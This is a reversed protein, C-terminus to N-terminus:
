AVELAAAVAEVPELTATLGPLEDQAGTLKSAHLEVVQRDDKWLVGNAADMFAKAVNDIDKANLSPERGRPKTKRYTSKPRSFIAVITLKVALLCPERGALAVRMHVQAAGKWSRLAPRTFRQARAKGTGDIYGRAGSRSWSVPEGPIHIVLPELTM